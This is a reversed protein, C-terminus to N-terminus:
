ATQLSAKVEDLGDRAFFLRGVNSSLIERNITIFRLGKQLVALAQSAEEPSAIRARLVSRFIDSNLDIGAMILRNDGELPVIDNASHFLKVGDIETDALKDLFAILTDFEEICAERESASPQQVLIALEQMRQLAERAKDLFKGQAKCLFIAQAIPPKSAPLVRARPRRMAEPEHQDHQPEHQQRWFSTESEPWVMTENASVLPWCKWNTLSVAEKPLARKTVKKLRTTKPRTRPM